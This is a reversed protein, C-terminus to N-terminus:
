NMCVQLADIFDQPGQIHQRQRQLITNGLTPGIRFPVDNGIVTCAFIRELLEDSQVVDFQSGHMCRLASRPLRDQFIEVSTSIGFLLM